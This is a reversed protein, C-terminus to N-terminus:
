GQIDRKLLALRVFFSSINIYKEKPEERSRENAIHYRKRTSNSFLIKKYESINEGRRM